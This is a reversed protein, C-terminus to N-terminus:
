ELRGSLKKLLRQQTSDIPLTQPPFSQLASQYASTALQSDGIANWADGSLELVWIPDDCRPDIALRALQEAANRDRARLVAALNQIVVTQFDQDISLNPINNLNELLQETSSGKSQSLLLRLRWGEWGPTGSPIEQHQITAAGFDELELQCRLRSLNCALQLEAAVRPTFRELFNLTESFQRTMVGHHMIRLGAQEYLEWKTGPSWEEAQEVHNTLWALAAMAQKLEHRWTKGQDISVSFRDLVADSLKEDLVFDDILQRTLVRSGWTQNFPELDGIAGLESETSQRDLQAASAFELEIFGLWEDLQGQDNAIRALEALDLGRWAQRSPESHLWPFAAPPNIPELEQNLAQQVWTVWRGREGRLQIRKLAAQSSRLMWIDEIPLREFDRESRDKSFERRHRLREVCHSIIVEDQVFQDFLWLYAVYELQRLDFQAFQEAHSTAVQGATQNKSEPAFPSSALDAALFESRSNMWSRRLGDYSGFGPLDANLTELTAGFRLSQRISRAVLDYAHDYLAQAASRDATSVMGLLKQKLTLVQVNDRVQKRRFEREQSDDLPFPRPIEVTWNTKLSLAEAYDAIWSIESSQPAGAQEFLHIAAEMLELAKSTESDQYLAKARDMRISARWYKWQPQAPERDQQARYFQDMIEFSKNNLENFLVQDGSKKAIKARCQLVLSLRFALRHLDPTKELVGRLALEHHLLSQEAQQLRWADDATPYREVSLWLSYGRLFEFPESQLDIDAPYELALKELPERLSDFQEEWTRVEDTSGIKLGFNEAENGIIRLRFKPSDPDLLAMSELVRNADARKQVALALEGNRGHISASLGLLKERHELARITRIPSHEILRQSDEFLDQMELQLGRNLTTHNALTDLNTALLRKVRSIELESDANPALEYAIEAERLAAQYADRALWCNGINDYYHGLVQKGHSRLLSWEADGAMPSPQNLVSEASECANKSGVMDGQDAYISALKCYAKALLKIEPPGQQAVPLEKLQNIVANAAVVAEPLRALRQLIEIRSFQLSCFLRLVAPWEKTSSQPLKALFADAAQLKVMSSSEDLEGMFTTAAEFSQLLPIILQQSRNYEALSEAAQVQLSENKAELERNTTTLSENQEIQQQRQYWALGAFAVIALAVATLASVTHQLLRARSQQAVITVLMQELEGRKQVLETEVLTKEELTLRKEQEFLVRANAAIAIDEKLQCLEHSASELERQLPNTMQQAAEADLWAQVARGLQEVGSGRGTFSTAKSEPSLGPVREAFWQWEREGIFREWPDFATAQFVIAELTSPTGAPFWRFREQHPVATTPQRGSIIEWLVAGLSYVDTPQRVSEDSLRPHQGWQEPSAYQPTGSGNLPFQNGRIDIETGPRSLDDPKLIDDTLVRAIGWDIIVTEGHPGIVINGPKIDRHIVRRQHAFGIGNCVDVFQSLLQRFNVRREPTHDWSVQEKHYDIIADKLRRVVRQNQSSILTQPLLRMVIAPETNETNVPNPLLVNYLPLINPHELKALIMAERELREQAGPVTKNTPLLTKIAVKRQLVHDYAEFVVGFGGQGVIGLLEFDREIPKHNTPFARQIREYQVRVGSYDRLNIGAKAEELIFTNRDSHVRACLAAAFDRLDANEGVLEDIQPVRDDRFANEIELELDTKQFALLRDAYEAAIQEQCDPSDPVLRCLDQVSLKRPPEEYWADRFRRWVEALKEVSNAVPIPDSM